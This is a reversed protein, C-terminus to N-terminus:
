GDVAARRARDRCTNQGSEQLKKYQNEFDTVLTNVIDQHLEPEDAYEQVMRPAM